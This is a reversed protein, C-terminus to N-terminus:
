LPVTNVTGRHQCRRPPPHRPPRAQAAASRDLCCSIRRSSIPLRTASSPTPPAEHLLSREGALRPTTRAGAGRQRRAVAEPRPLSILCVRPASPAWSWPHSRSQSGSRRASPSAERPQPTRLVEVTDGRTPLVTYRVKQPIVPSPQRLQRSCIALTSISSLSVAVVSSLPLGM